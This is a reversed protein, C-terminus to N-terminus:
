KNLMDDRKELTNIIEEVSRSNEDPKVFTDDNSKTVAVATKNRLFEREEYVVKRSAVKLSDVRTDM